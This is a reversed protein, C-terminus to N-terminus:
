QMYFSEVFKSTAIATSLGIALGLTVLVLVERLVMRVVGGRQAGLAEVGTYRVNKHL